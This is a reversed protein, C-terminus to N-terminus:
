KEPPLAFLEVHNCELCHVVAMRIVHSLDDESRLAYADDELGFKEGGCIPCKVRPVGLALFSFQMNIKTKEKDTLKM